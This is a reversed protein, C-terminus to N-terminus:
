RKSSGWYRVEQDQRVLVRGRAILAQKDRGRLTRIKKLGHSDTERSVVVRKWGFWGRKITIKYSVASKSGLKVRDRRVSKSLDPEVTLSHVESAGACDIVLASTKVYGTRKDTYPRLVRGVKQVYTSQSGPGGDLLVVELQPMDFGETFVMVGVLVQTLRRETRDYAANQDATSMKGHVVDAAVGRTVLAAHIAEARRVNSTFIMGQRNRSEGIWVQAITDPHKDQPRVRKITPKILYHHKWAYALDRKYVVRQWADGLGLEDNRDATATFGVVRTRDFGGLERISAMYTNASAHHCEDIIVLDIKGLSSRRLHSRGLTQISAIIVQADVQNKTSKVIGITVLPSARRVQDITQKVLKDRNVFIVVRKGQSIEKAVMGAIIVTKGMGTPLVVVVRLLGKGWAAYCAQDAETQYPRPIFAATATPM